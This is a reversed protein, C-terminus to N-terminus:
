KSNVLSWDGCVFDETEDYKEDSKEYLNKCADIKIIQLDLDLLCYSVLSNLGRDLGLIYFDQSNNKHLANIKEIHKEVEEKTKAKAGVTDVTSNIGLGFDAFIKDEFFRAKNTKRENGIVRQTENTDDKLRIYFKGEPKIRWEESHIDQVFNNWYLTFLDRKRDQKQQKPVFKDGLTEKTKNLREIKEKDNESTAFGEDLLFDKNFIQFIEVNEKKVLEEWSVYKWEAQYGQKDIM